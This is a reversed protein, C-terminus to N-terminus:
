PIRIRDMHNGGVGAQFKPKSLRFKILPYSLGYRSNHIVEFGVGSTIIHACLESHNEVHKVRTPGM